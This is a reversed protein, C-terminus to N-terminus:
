NKKANKLDKINDELIEIKNWLDINNDELAKLDDLYNIADIYDTFLIDQNEMANNLISKIFEIM